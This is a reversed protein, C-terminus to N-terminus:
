IARFGSWAQTPRKRGSPRSPGLLTTPPLQKSPSLLCHVFSLHPVRDDAGVTCSAALTLLPIHEVTDDGDLRASGLTPAGQVSLWPQVVGPASPSEELQEIVTPAASTGMPWKGWCPTLYSLPLITSFYISIVPSKRGEARSNMRMLSLLCPSRGQSCASFRILQHKRTNGSFELGFSAEM